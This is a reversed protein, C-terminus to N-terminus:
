EAQEGVNEFEFLYKPEAVKEQTVVTVTYLRQTSTDENIQVAVMRAEENDRLYAIAKQIAPLKYLSAHVFPELMAPQTVSGDRIVKTQIVYKRM